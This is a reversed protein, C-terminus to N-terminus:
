QSKDASPKLTSHLQEVLSQLRILSADLNGTANNHPPAAPQEAYSLPPRNAQTQAPLASDDLWSPQRQQSPHEWSRPTSIFRSSPMAYANQAVPADIQAHMLYETAADSMDDRLFPREVLTHSPPLRRAPSPVIPQELTFPHAYPPQPELLQLTSTSLISDNDNMSEFSQQRQRQLYSALQESSSM